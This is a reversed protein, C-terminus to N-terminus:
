HNHLLVRVGPRDPRIRQTRSGDSELERRNPAHRAALNGGGPTTWWRHPGSQRSPDRVRSPLAAHIAPRPRPQPRHDPQRERLIARGMRRDARSRLLRRRRDPHARNRLPTESGTPDILGDDVLIASLRNSDLTVARVSMTGLEGLANTNTLQLAIERGTARNLVFSPDFFDRPDLPMWGFAANVRGSTDIALLGFELAAPLARDAGTVLFTGAREVLGLPISEVRPADALFAAKVLRMTVDTPETLNTSFDVILVDDSLMTSEIAIRVPSREGDFTVVTEFDAGEADVSNRYVTVPGAELELSDLSTDTNGFSRLRLDDYLLIDGVAPAREEDGSVNIIEEIRWVGDFLANSSVCATTDQCEPAIRSTSESCGILSVGLGLATGVLASRLVRGSFCASLM